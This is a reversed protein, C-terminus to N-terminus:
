MKYKSPDTSLKHEAAHPQCGWRCHRTSDAQTLKYKEKLGLLFLASYKLLGKSSTAKENTM